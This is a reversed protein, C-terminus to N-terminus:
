VSLTISTAELPKHERLSEDAMSVTLVCYMQVLVSIGMRVLMYLSKGFKYWYQPISKGCHQYLERLEVVLM